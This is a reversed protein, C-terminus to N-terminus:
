QHALCKWCESCSFPKEGTHTRQHTVLDTKRLFRKECESCSFPKEGTHTRLHRVLLAKETFCKECESCSFPKEGTHTRQHNVLVSKRTFCKGCESCSFPKEGTHSRQHKVLDSKQNCCKGCESCSFPKEGTHIRQHTVLVSKRTFCKGCEACSFLKEGTHIRQHKILDSKRTFCKRCESCSFPKGGTLYKKHQVYSFQPKGTNARQHEDDGRYIDAQQSPASSPVQIVPHSSLDKSRPASPTDPITSPEEYTDQTIHDESSIQHGGSSRTSDDLWTQSRRSKTNPRDTEEEKIIKDMAINHSLNKVTNIEKYQEDSIEDTEEEKVTLDTCSIEILDEGTPLSRAPCDLLLQYTLFGGASSYLLRSSEPGAM